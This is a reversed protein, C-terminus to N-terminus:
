RCRRTTPTTRVRVTVPAGPAHRMANTLSEQVVRHVIDAHESADGIVTLDVPTGALRVREVLALLHEAPHDAPHEGSVPSAPLRELDALTTATTERMVEVARSVAAPDHPWSLEAAGAQLAIVGVAHSVVDHLERAVAVREVRVAEDAAEGLVRARTEAARRARDQGWRQAGVLLGGLLAVAIVLLVVGLNDPDDRLFAWTVVGVLLFITAARALAGGLRPAPVAALTWVLVGLTIVIWFGSTM